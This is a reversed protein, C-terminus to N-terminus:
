KVRSQVPKPNAPASVGANRHKVSFSGFGRPQVNTSKTPTTIHPTVFIVLEARAAPVQILVVAGVILSALINRLGFHM